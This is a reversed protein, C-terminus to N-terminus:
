VLITIPPFTLGLRYEANPAIPFFAVVAVFMIFLTLESALLAPLLIVVESLVTDFIPFFAAITPPTSVPAVTNALLDM